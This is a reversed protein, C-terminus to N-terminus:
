MLENDLLNATQMSIDQMSCNYMVKVAYNHPSKEWLYADLVVKLMFPQYLTRGGGVRQMVALDLAHEPLVGLRSNIVSDYGVMAVGYCHQEPGDMPEGASAWATNAATFSLIGFVASRIINNM